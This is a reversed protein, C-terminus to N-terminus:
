ASPPRTAKPRALHDASPDLRHVSLDPRFLEPGVPPAPIDGGHDSPTVTALTTTTLPGTTEPHFPHSPVAIARISTRVVIHPLHSPQSNDGNETDSDVDSTGSVDDDRNFLEVLFFTSLGALAVLLLCFVIAPLLGDDDDERCYENGFKVHPSHRGAPEGEMLPKDPKFGPPDGM